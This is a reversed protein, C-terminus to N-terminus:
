KRHNLLQNSVTSRGKVKTKLQVDDKFSGELEYILREFCQKMLELLIYLTM